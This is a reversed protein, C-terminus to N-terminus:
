GVSRTGTVMSTSWCLSSATMPSLPFRRLRANDIRRGGYNMARDRWALNDLMNRYNYGSQNLGKGDGYWGHQYSLPIGFLYAFDSNPALVPDRPVGGATTFCSVSKPWRGKVIVGAANKRLYPYDVGGNAGGDMHALVSDTHLGMNNRRVIASHRTWKERNGYRTDWGYHNFPDYAGGNSAGTTSPPCLIDSIGARQHMQADMAGRDAPWITSTKDIPSPFGSPTRMQNFQLMANM